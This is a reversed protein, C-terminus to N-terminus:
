KTLMQFVEPLTQMRSCGLNIASRESKWNIITPAELAEPISRENSPEEFGGQERVISVFLQDLAATEGHAYYM